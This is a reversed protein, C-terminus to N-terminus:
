PIQSSEAENEFPLVLEVGPSGDNNYPKRPVPAMPGQNGRPPKKNPLFVEGAYRGSVLYKRINGTTRVTYHLTFSTQPRVYLYVDVGIAPLPRLSYYFPFNEPLNEEIEFVVSELDTLYGLDTVIDYGHDKSTGRLYQLHRFRKTENKRIVRREEQFAEFLFPLVYVKRVKEGRKLCDIILGSAAELEM